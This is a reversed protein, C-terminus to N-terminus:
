ALLACLRSGIIPTNWRMFAFARNGFRLCMSCGKGTLLRRARRKFRFGARTVPRDLLLSALLSGRRRLFLRLLNEALPPCRFTRLLGAHLLLLGADLLFTGMELRKTSFDLANPLQM